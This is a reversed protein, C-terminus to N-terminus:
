ALLSLPPRLLEDPVPDPLSPPTHWGYRDSTQAVHVLPLGLMAASGHSHGHCPGCDRDVDANLTDQQSGDAKPQAHEHDHEHVHYGIAGLAGASAEIECVGAVAAWSFQLPLVFMLLILVLRRMAHMRPAM